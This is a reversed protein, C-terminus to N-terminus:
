RQNRPLGDEITYYDGKEATFIHMSLSTGAADDFVGMAVATWDHHVPDWFLISGCEACFGRRVKTSSQHWRVHWEGSVSLASRPLEVFAGFHGTQKRCETCHCAIPQPLDVTVTVRVAGCLCSGDHM